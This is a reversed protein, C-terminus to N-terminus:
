QALQRFAPRSDQDQFFALMATRAKAADRGLNILGGIQGPARLLSLLLAGIKLGGDPSLVCGAVPPLTRDAPDCVVRLVAFPLGAEEAARALFASEMDLAKCGSAAFLEAKHAADLVVDDSHLLPGSITGAQNGGLIHRLTPDCAWVNGWGQVKDPILITGAPLSPDLGAALGFSMLCNAGCAALRDAERRAGDRTAGSAAIAARPFIRRVLRAEAKLGVLIGPSSLPYQVAALAM